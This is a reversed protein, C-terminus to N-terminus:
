LKDEIVKSPQYSHTNIRLYQMAAYSCLFSSFICEISIIGVLQAFSGNSAVSGESLILNIFNPAILYYITISLALFLSVLGGIKIGNLLGKIYSFQSRNHNKQARLGYFVGLFLIIMNLSRLVTNEALGIVQMFFFFAGIGVTTYLAYAAASNKIQKLSNM